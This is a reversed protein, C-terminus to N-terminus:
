KRGFDAPIEGLTKTDWKSLLELYEQLNECTRMWTHAKAIENFLPTGYSPFRYSKCEGASKVWGIATNSDSYVTLRMGKSELWRFAKVIALYEMINNTAGDHPGIHFLETRSPLMVGRAEGIFTSGSCAGDVAIAPKCEIQKAPVKIECIVDLGNKFANAADYRNTYSKYKAGPFGEISKKCEEWKTFLGLERGVWVVYFKKAM